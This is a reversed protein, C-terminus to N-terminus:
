MTSAASRASITPRKPSATSATNAHPTGTMTRDLGVAVILVGALRRLRSKVSLRPDHTLWGTWKSRLQGIFGM